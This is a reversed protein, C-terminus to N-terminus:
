VWPTGWCRGKELRSGSRLFKQGSCPTSIEEYHFLGTKLSQETHVAHVAQVCHVTDVAEVCHVAHVSYVAHVAQLCQVAHVCYLAHV